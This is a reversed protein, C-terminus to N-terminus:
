RLERQKVLAYVAPLAILTLLASTVMGGIMPVAIRQMVRLVPLLGAMIAMVTM